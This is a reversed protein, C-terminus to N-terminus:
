STPSLAMVETISGAAQKRKLPRLSWEPAEVLIEGFDVLRVNCLLFYIWFTLLILESYMSTFANRTTEM